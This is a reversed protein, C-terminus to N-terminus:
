TAINRIIGSNPATSKFAHLPRNLMCDRVSAGLDRDGADWRSELNVCDDSREFASSLVFLSIRKPDLLRQLSTMHTVYHQPVVDGFILYALGRREVEPYSASAARHILQYPLDAVDTPSIPQASVRRLLDLWGQLVDIRNSTAPSGLWHTVPEYEPETYKAEIILSTTPTFIALDSYSAKGSGRQVQVSYEFVLDMADRLEMGTADSLAELASEPNRFFDLLPLVSRRPSAFVDAPIVQLLSDFNPAETKEWYLRM